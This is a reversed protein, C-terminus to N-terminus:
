FLVNDIFNLIINDPDPVCRYNL